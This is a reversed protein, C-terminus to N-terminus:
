KDCQYQEDGYLDEPELYNKMLNNTLQHRTRTITINPLNPLYVMSQGLRTSPIALTLDTLSTTGQSTHSCELCHYYTVLQVDFVAHVLSHGHGRGAEGGSNM